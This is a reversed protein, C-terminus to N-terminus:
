AIRTVTITGKERDIKTTLSKQNRIANINSTATRISFVSEIPFAASEEIELSKIRALASIKHANNKM